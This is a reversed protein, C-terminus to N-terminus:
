QCADTCHGAAACLVVIASRPSAQLAESAALVSGAAVSATVVVGSAVNKLWHLWTSRLSPNKMAPM